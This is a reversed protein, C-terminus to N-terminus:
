NGQQNGAASALRVKVGTDLRAVQSTAVMEGDELGETIEVDQGYRDGLKVDRAEVVGGSVAYAKNLGFVYNIASVPILRIREVKDTEVRVRAYSGPKLEANRNDILAEVVFTRKSQDV